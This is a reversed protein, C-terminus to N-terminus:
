NSLLWLEEFATLRLSEGQRGFVLHAPNPEAPLLEEWAKQPAKM